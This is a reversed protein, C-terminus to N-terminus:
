IIKNVQLANGKKGLVISACVEFCLLKIGFVLSSDSLSKSFIEDLFYKHKM